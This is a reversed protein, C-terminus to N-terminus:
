KGHIMSIVRADVKSVQVVAAGGKCHGTTVARKGDPCYLTGSVTWVNDKLEATFPEESEILKKGFVPVLVAEAIKVATYSDPVYGDKPPRYGQGFALAVLLLSFNIVGIKM